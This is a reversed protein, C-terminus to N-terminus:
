DRMGSQFVSSSSSSSASGTRTLSACGRRAVPPAAARRANTRLTLANRAHPSARSTRELRRSRTTRKFFQADFMSPNHVESTAIQPVESDVDPDLIAPNTRDPNLLISGRLGGGLPDVPSWIVQGDNSASKMEQVNILIQANVDTSTVYATRAVTSMKPIAVIIRDQLLGEKQFQRFTAKGGVPQGTIHFEFFKLSDTTNQAFVVFGRQILETTPKGSVPDLRFGLPKTNGPSGVFLGPTIRSTYINADREGTTKPDPTCM